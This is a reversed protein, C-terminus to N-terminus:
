EGGEMWQEIPLKNMEHAILMLNMERLAHMMCRPIGSLKCYTPSSCGKNACRMEEDYWQLPGNQIGRPYPSEVQQPAKPVALREPAKLIANIQEQSLGPM